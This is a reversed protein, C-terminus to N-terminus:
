IPQEITKFKTTASVGDAAALGAQLPTQVAVFAAIAAAGASAPGALHPPGFGPDSMVSIVKKGIVNDIVGSKTIYYEVIDEMYKDLHELVVLQAARVCATSLDEVYREQDEKLKEYNEDSLDPAQDDLNDRIMNKVDDIVAREVSTSVTKQAM